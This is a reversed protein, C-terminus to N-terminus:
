LIPSFLRAVSSTLRKAISWSAVDELTVERANKLDEGFAESLTDAIAPDHIAVVVEFNLRFSRNDTNATGIVATGDVVLTKAHLVPEGYEYIKVGVDLLEPYYSRAAAAIFPQDGSEPVLVRVDAGRLAAAPRAM